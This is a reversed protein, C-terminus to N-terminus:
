SPRAEDDATLFGAFTGADVPPSYHYGQAIDCDLERLEIVHHATEVGEAVTTMGLAQGMRVVAQVIASDEPDHGLGNVFSQDVKLIDVPFQRLYSLSSYGTGFDDLALHVGLDKLATLKTVTEGTDDFLMSETLELCIGAADTGSAAIADAVKAGFDAAAFQRASINVSMLLDDRAPFERRWRASQECATQLVWDGVEIILESGEAIPIFEAPSVTGWEPHEWRILAECAVLRNTRLHIEPQYHLVLEGRTGAGRLADELGSRRETQARIEEDFVVISGGGKSRALHNATAAQRLLVDSTNAGSRGLTIGMSLTFFVDREGVRIPETFARTIREALELAHDLDEVDECLVMFDEDAWRHASARGDLRPPIRSAVDRMAQRGVEPGFRDLKTHFRDPTLMVLGVHGPRANEGHLLLDLRDLFLSRHPLGTLRDYFARERLARIAEQEASTDKAVLGLHSGSGALDLVCLTARTSLRGTVPSALALPGSWSGDRGAVTMAEEFRDRDDTTVMTRVDDPPSEDPALRLIRRGAANLFRVTGDRDVIAVLDSLHDAMTLSARSLAEERPIRGAAADPGSAEGSSM